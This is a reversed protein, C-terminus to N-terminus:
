WTSFTSGDRQEPAHGMEMTNVIFYKMMKKGRYTHGEALFRQHGMYVVKRSGELFMSIIDIMYYSCRTFGKIQGCLSFLALYDTITVFIIARCTSAKKTLEDWISVGENWLKKMDELLPELFVDINIGLQKPGSILITLLL